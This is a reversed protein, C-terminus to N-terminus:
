RTDADVLRDVLEDNTGNRPLDRQALLDTLEAKSLGEYQNGNRAAPVRFVPGDGRGPGAVTTEIGGRGAGDAQTACKKWLEASRELATLAGTTVDAYQQEVSMVFWEKGGM